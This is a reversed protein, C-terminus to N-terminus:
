TCVAINDVDDTDLYFDEQVSDRSGYCRFWVLEMNGNIM